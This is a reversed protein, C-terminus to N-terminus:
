RFTIRVASNVFDAERWLLARDPTFTWFDDGEGPRFAYKAEYVDCIRRMAAADENRRAHGELIVVEDGSELHVVADSQRSLNRGKISAPDTGFWLQDGLWVGWVPMAHARGDGRSTAIWYNRSAELRESAWDWTLAAAGPDGTIGYGGPMHPRDIRPAADSM